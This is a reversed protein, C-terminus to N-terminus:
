PLGPASAAPHTRRGPHDPAGAPSGAAASRGQGSRSRACPFGSSYQGSASACRSLSRKLRALAAAHLQCVRSETVRLRRGIERMTLEELYYGEIVQRERQPLGAIAARMSHREENGLLRQLPTPDASAIQDLALGRDDEDEPCVFNALQLGHIRTLQEQYEALSLGLRDAMEPEAPAHGLLATLAHRAADVRRAMQRLTRSGWDGSRLSDLIAGRIRFQTFTALSADRAPDYRKVAEIFGMVGASILDEMAVHRPLRAAIRRAVIRVQPLHRLVMAELDERSFPSFTSTAPNNM